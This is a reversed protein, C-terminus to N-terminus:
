LYKEGEALKQCYVKGSITGECLQKLLTTSHGAFESSTVPAIYMNDFGIKFSAYMKEPWNGDANTTVIEFAESTAPADAWSAYYLQQEKQLFWEIFKYAKDKNRSFSPVYLANCDAYAVDKSEKIVYDPNGLDEADAAKFPAITALETGTNEYYESLNRLTGFNAWGALCKNEIIANAVDGYTGGGSESYPVVWGSRMFDQFQQAAAYGIENNCGIKGDAGIMPAGASALFIHLAESITVNLGMLVNTDTGVDELLDVLEYGTFAETRDYPIKGDPLVSSVSEWLTANIVPVRNVIGVPIAIVSDGVTMMNRIDPLITEWADALEGVQSLDVFMNADKDQLNLRSLGWNNIFVVDASSEGMLDQRMTSFHTSYEKFEWELDIDPYMAEFDAELKEMRPEDATSSWRAVRLVDPDTRACGMAAFGITTLCLVSALATALKKMM